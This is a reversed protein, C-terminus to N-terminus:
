GLRWMSARVSSALVRQLRQLRQLRQQHRSFLDGSDQAIVKFVLGCFPEKFDPKRREEKDKKPNVGVVPPRDLPSPLYHCVADLLPQIGAHERGSGCLVPQVQM